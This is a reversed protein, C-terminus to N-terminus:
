RFCDQVCTTKTEAAEAVVKNETPSLFPLMQSDFALNNDLNRVGTLLDACPQINVM